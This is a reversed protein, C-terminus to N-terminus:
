DTLYVLKYGIAALLGGALPGIWYVWHDAWEGAVLAPGFSRAPNMSAGTLPAGVLIDVLVTLGIAIPAISSPARTDIATAFIVFVLAFTLIVETLVAASLSIEDSLLTAGLGLDQPFVVKILWAGLLAGFLQAPIYLIARVPSVKGTILLGLTVAPNIHGGSLGATASVILAVALGFAMAITLLRPVTLDPELQGTSVVAGAGFFVLLATGIFEAFAARGDRGVDLGLKM